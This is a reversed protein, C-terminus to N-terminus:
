YEMGKAARPARHRTFALIADAGLAAGGAAEFSQRVLAAQQRFRDDDLVRQASARLRDATVEKKALCLGAGLEEVQRAVIEQEGM